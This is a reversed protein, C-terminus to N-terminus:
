RWLWNRDEMGTHCDDQGKSVPPRALFIVSHFSLFSSKQSQSPHSNALRLSLFCPRSVLFRCPSISSQPASPFESLNDNLHCVCGGPIHKILGDGKRRCSLRSPLSQCATVYTPGHSPSQQGAAELAQTKTYQGPSPGTGVGPALPTPSYLFTVGLSEFCSLLPPLPFHGLHAIKHRLKRHSSDLLHLSFLLLQM